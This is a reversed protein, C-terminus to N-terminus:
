QNLHARPMNGTSSWSTASQFARERESAKWKEFHYHAKELFDELIQTPPLGLEKHLRALLLLVSVCKGHVSGDEKTPATNGFVRRLGSRLTNAKSLSKEYMGLATEMHTAARNVADLPRAPNVRKLTDQASLCHVDGIDAFLQLTQESFLAQLKSTSTVVLNFKSLFVVLEASAM